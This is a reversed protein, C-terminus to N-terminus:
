RKAVERLGVLGLMAEVRRARADRAMGDLELGLAVNREVTRWPLLTADQFIFSVMERAKAPTIGNVEITGSSAPSLGAVLRLLTSKGCGSPGLLTVFQGQPVSFSITELVAPGDGYRKTVRDFLVEPLPENRAASGHAPVVVAAPEQAADRGEPWRAGLSM